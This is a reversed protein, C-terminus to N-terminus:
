CSGLKTWHCLVIAGLLSSMLLSMGSVALATQYSGSIMASSAIPREIDHKQVILVLRPICMRHRCIKPCVISFLLM